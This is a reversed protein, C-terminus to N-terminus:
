NFKDYSIYIWPSPVLQLSVNWLLMDFTLLLVINYQMHGNRLVNEDRKLYIYFRWTPSSTRSRVLGSDYLISCVFARLFLKLTSQPVQPLMSCFSSFTGKLTKQRTSSMFLVCVCMCTYFIYIYIYILTNLIERRCECCSKSFTQALLGPGGYGGVPKSGGEAGRARGAYAGTAPKPSIAEPVGCGNLVRQANYKDKEQWRRRRREPRNLTGRLCRVLWVAHTWFNCM